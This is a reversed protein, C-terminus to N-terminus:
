PLLRGPNFLNQPDIARKMTRMLALEAAPKYRAMDGVLTQGIGHEASFTGGHAVAAENVAGRVQEAFGDKDKM